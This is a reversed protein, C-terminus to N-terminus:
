GRALDELRGLFDLHDKTGFPAISFFQNEEFPVGLRRELAFHLPARRGNFQAADCGLLFGSNAYDVDFYSKRWIRNFADVVEKAPKIALVLDREAKVVITTEYHKEPRNAVVPVIGFEKALWGFLDDLFADLLDTDSRSTVIVGDNYVSMEHIQAGQFTGMAFAYTGGKLLEDLSPYKAFSYRQVTKAVAEPLYIQGSPRHVQTLFIIRSSEIMVLDM